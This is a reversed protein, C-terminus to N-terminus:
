CVCVEVVCEFEATCGLCNEISNLCRIKKKMRSVVHHGVDSTTM